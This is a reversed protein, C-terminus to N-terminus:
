MNQEVQEMGHTCPQLQMFCSFSSQYSVAVLFDGKRWAVRLLRISASDGIFGNLESVQCLVLGTPFFYAFPKRCTSAAWCTRLQALGLKSCSLPQKQQLTVEKASSFSVQPLCNASCLHCVASLIRLSACPDWDKWFKATM